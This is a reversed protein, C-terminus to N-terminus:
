RLLYPFIALRLEATRVYGAREYAKLAAHNIVSVHLTIVPIEELVRRGIEAMCRSAIGRGRLDEATYVGEVQAGRPDRVALDAKFALFGNKRMVFSRGDAIKERMRRKVITRDIKWPDIEFDEASMRASAVTLEDLDEETARRVAPEGLDPLTDPTQVCFAQARDLRARRRGDEAYRSMFLTTGAWPGLVMVWSRELRAALKALETTFEPSEGALVLNQGTGFLAFGRIEGGERYVYGPGCDPDALRSRLYIHVHPPDALFADVADRDGPDYPLLSGM